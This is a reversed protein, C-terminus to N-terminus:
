TQRLTAKGLDAKDPMYNLNSKHKNFKCAHCKYMFSLAMMRASPPSQGVQKAGNACIFSHIIVYPVVICAFMSRLGTPMQTKVDQRSWGIVGLKNKIELVDFLGRM